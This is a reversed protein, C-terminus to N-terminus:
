RSKRHILQQRGSFSGEKHYELNKSSGAEVDMQDGMEDMTDGTEATDMDSDPRDEDDEYDALAPLLAPLLAGPVNERPNPASNMM